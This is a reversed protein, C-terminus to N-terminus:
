KISLVANLSVLVYEIWGLNLNLDVVKVRCIQLDDVATGSPQQPEAM